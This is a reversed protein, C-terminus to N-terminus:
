RFVKFVAWAILTAGFLSGASIAYKKGTSNDKKIYASGTLIALVLTAIGTSVSIASAPLAVEPQHFM